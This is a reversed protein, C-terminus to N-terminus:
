AQNRAGATAISLGFDGIKVAGEADEFCNGPKIDRHLIGIAQAAELGAIIQLIADVAENIPM